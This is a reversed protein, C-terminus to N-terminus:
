AIVGGKVYEITKEDEAAMGEGSEAQTSPTDIITQYAEEEIFQFKTPNAKKLDSAAMSLSHLVDDEEGSIKIDMSCAIEGKPNKWMVSFEGEGAKRKYFWSYRTIRLAM